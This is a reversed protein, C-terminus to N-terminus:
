VFPELYIIIHIHVFACYNRYLVWKVYKKVLFLFVDLFQTLNSPSPPTPIIMTPPLPCCRGRLDVPRPHALLQPEEGLRHAAEVGPLRRPLRQQFTTPKHDVWTEEPEWRQIQGDM